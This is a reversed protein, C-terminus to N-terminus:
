GWELPRNRSMSCINSTADGGRAPLVLAHRDRELAAEVVEPRGQRFHRETHDIELRGSARGGITRDGLDAGHLEDPAFRGAGELRQDVRTGGYGREDGHEGPDSVGHHDLGGLDLFGQGTEELEQAVRHDDAVVDSEVQREEIGGGLPEPIPAQGVPRGVGGGQGPAQYAGLHAVELQGGQGGVEARRHGRSVPGEVVGGGRGVHEPAQQFSGPGDTGGM